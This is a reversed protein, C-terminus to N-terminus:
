PQSITGHITTISQPPINMRFYTGQAQVDDIPHMRETASTRFATVDAIDTINGEIQFGVNVNSEEPNIAIITVEQKEPHYFAAMNVIKRVPTAEVRRAGDDIFRFFHKATYTKPTPLDYVMMGHTNPHPDTVQWPTFTSVNGYVAANYIAAAIGTVPDPWKHGGTGGETIWFPKDTAEIMKRFEIIGSAEYDEEFGDVYGHTAFVDLYQAAPSDTLVNIYMPNAIDSNHSTMTEPGYILVDDYGESTLMEGLEVIMKGYDEATWVCSGFPQTFMVENGISIAYLPKGTHHEFLKVWEVLYKAYHKYYKPKLRNTVPKNTRRNIYRDGYIAGSATDTLENNMKMWPPPTWVTAIIKSEPNLIIMAKAFDVFVQVDRRNKPRKVDSASLDFDEYSIDQWNEVPDMLVGGWLNCRLMNMGMENVYFEQFEKTRYLDPFEKWYPGFNILSTGFGEITQFQEDLNVTFVTSAKEKTSNCGALLVFIFLTFGLINITKIKM